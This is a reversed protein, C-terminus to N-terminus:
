RNFSSSSSSASLLSGPPFPSRLLTRRHTANIPHRPPATSPSPGKAQGPHAKRFIYRPVPRHDDPPDPNQSLQRGPQNKFNGYPRLFRAMPPFLPAFKIDHKWPNGCVRKEQRLGFKYANPKFRKKQHGNQREQATSQALPKPMSDPGGAFGPAQTLGLLAYYPCRGELPRSHTPWSCQQSM